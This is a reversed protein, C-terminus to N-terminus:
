KAYVMSTTSYTQFPPILAANPDNPNTPDNIISHNRGVMMANASIVNTVTLKDGTILGSANLTSVAVTKNFTVNNIQPTDLQVLELGLM